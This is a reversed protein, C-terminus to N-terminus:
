KHFQRMHWASQEALRGYSEGIPCANRVLCGSSLCIEGELRNLWTHCAAVDYGEASLALAPCATTCPAPCGTCPSPIAAPLPLTGPLALAGRYSAWLGMRGQVLLSVPSAFAQGSALAWAFFPAYPPGGFPFVARGNWAKALGGIVRESWRDLPDPLGDAFEPGNTAHAWFGPEDPALLVITEAGEHVMGAVFLRQLALAQLLEAPLSM